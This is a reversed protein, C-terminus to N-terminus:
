KSWKKDERICYGANFCDGNLGYECNENMCEEEEDYWKPYPQRSNYM